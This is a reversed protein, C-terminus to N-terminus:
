EDTSEVGHIARYLWARAMTWDRVVTRRSMDLARATEDTTMGGFFRCEVIRAQRPFDRALQNLAEHLEMVEASFSDAAVQEQDFTVPSENGGRKLRTRRRAADVLVQRMARAAAGFFYARNQLPIATQDVLKLYAEDVLATTDLTHRRHGALQRRALRRLEDYVLPVVQDLVERDNPARESLLRTLTRRTDGAEAM